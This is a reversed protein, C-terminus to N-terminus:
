THQVSTAHLRNQHLIMEYDPSHVQDQRESVIAVKPPRVMPKRQHREREGRQEQGRKDATGQVIVHSGRVVAAHNAVDAVHRGDSRRRPQREVPNDNDGKRPQHRRLRRREIGNRM